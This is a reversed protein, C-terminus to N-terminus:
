APEQWDLANVAVKVNYILVPGVILMFLKVLGDSPIRLLVYSEAALDRWATKPSPSKFSFPSYLDELSKLSEPLEFFRSIGVTELNKPFGPSQHIM